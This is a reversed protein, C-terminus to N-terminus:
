KSAGIVWPFVDGPDRLTGALASTVSEAFMTEESNSSGHVRVGRMWDPPVFNVSQVAIRTLVQLVIGQPPTAVFDWDWIGDSPPRLYIRPQLEANRWGTTTVMGESVIITTGGTARVVSASTVELIRAQM